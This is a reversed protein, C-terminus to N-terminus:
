KRSYHTQKSMGGSAQHAILLTKIDQLLLTQEQQLRELRVMIECLQPESVMSAEPKLRPTPNLMPTPSKPPTLTLPNETTRSKLKLLHLLQTLIWQGARMPLQLLKVWLQETLQAIARLLGGFLVVLVIVMLLGWIPHAFGWKLVPYDMLWNQLM